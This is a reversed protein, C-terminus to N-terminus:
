CGSEHAGLTARVGCQRCLAARSAKLAASERILCSEDLTRLIVRTPVIPKQTAARRSSGILHEPAWAAVVSFILKISLQHRHGAISRPAEPSIVVGVDGRARVVLLGFGLRRCLKRVRPDTERGRGNPAARVALWVEDPAAARDVGQQVLELNFVLKMEGIVVIPPPDPSLAILDCGGVEGKVELGLRELFRKVPQYLHTEM